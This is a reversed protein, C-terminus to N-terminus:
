RRFGIALRDVGPLDPDKEAEIRAPSVRFRVEFRILPYGDLSSIDTVFPTISSPLPRTPDLPSPDAGSFRVGLRVGAPVESLPEGSGDVLLLDEIGALTTVEGTRPDTADFSWVTQGPVHGTVYFKSRGLTKGIVSDPFRRIVAPPECNPCISPPFLCELLIRGQRSSGGSGAGRQGVGGGLVGLAEIRGTLGAFRRARIWAYGGSGSGGGGAGLDGNVAGRGGSGGSVFIGGTGSPVRVWDRVELCLAGGGGGGSGGVAPAVGGLAPPADSGGAGGGAGGVFLEVSGYADGGAGGTGGDEGNGDRGDIGPARHGGGGGGGPASTSEGGGGGLAVVGRPVLGPGGAAMGLGDPNAIGGSGGGPGGAGGPLPLGEEADEGNLGRDGRADVFETGTPFELSGFVRILAPEPGRIVLSPDLGEFTISNFDFGGPRGETDLVHTGSVVLDGDSGDGGWGVGAQLFPRDAGRWIATTIGDRQTRDEFSEVFRDQSGHAVGTRFVAGLVVRPAVDADWPDELVVEIRHDSEELLERAIDVYLFSCSRRSSPVFRHEVRLDRVPVRFAGRDGGSARGARERDLEVIRIPGDVRPARGASARLSAIVRSDLLGDFFVAIRLPGNPPAADLSGTRVGRAFAISPVFDTAFFEEAEPTSRCGDGAAIGDGDIDLLVGAVSPIRSARNPDGDTELAPAGAALAPDPSAPDSQPWLTAYGFPSSGFFFGLFVALFAGSAYGSRREPRSASIAPDYM